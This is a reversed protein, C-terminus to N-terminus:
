WKHTTMIANSFQGYGCSVYGNKNYYDICATCMLAFGGPLRPDCIFDDHVDLGTDCSVCVGYNHEDFKKAREDQTLKFGPKHTNNTELSSVAATAPSRRATTM